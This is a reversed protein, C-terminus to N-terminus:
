RGKLYNQVGDHDGAFDFTLVGRRALFVLRLDLGARCEFLGDALKRISLGAHLHPQGFGEQVQRLARLVEAERGRIARRFRRTTEIVCPM